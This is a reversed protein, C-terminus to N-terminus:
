FAQSWKSCSVQTGGRKLAGDNVATCKAKENDDFEVMKNTKDPSQRGCWNRCTGCYKSSYSKRM